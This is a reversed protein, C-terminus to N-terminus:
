TSDQAEKRRRVEVLMQGYNLARGKWLVYGEHAQRCRKSKEAMGKILRKVLDSVAIHISSSAQIAPHDRIEVLVETVEDDM